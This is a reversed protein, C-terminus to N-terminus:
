TSGDDQRRRIKAKAYHHEQCTAQWDSRLQLQVYPKGSDIRTLTPFWWVIQMSTETMVLVGFASCGCPKVVASACCRRLSSPSLSSGVALLRPHIRMRSSITLSGMNRRSRAHPVSYRM